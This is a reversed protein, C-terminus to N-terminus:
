ILSKIERNFKPFTENTKHPRVDIIKISFILRKGPWPHNADIIVYGDHIEKVTALFNRDNVEGWFTMGTQISKNTKSLKELPIRQQLSKDFTAHIGSDNEFTITDGITCGFMLNYADPGLYQSIIDITFLLKRQWKALTKKDSKIEQEFYVVKNDQLKL